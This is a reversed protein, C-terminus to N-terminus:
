LLGSQLCKIIVDRICLICFICDTCFFVFVHLKHELLVLICLICNILLYLILIQIMLHNQFQISHFFVQILKFLLFLNEFSNYKTLNMKIINPIKKHLAVIHFVVVHTGQYSDKNKNNSNKIVTCCHPGCVLHPENYSTNIKPIKHCYLWYFHM